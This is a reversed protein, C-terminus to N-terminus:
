RALDAADLVGGRARVAAVIAAARPGRYFPRSGHAALAELTRALDAQVIRFDPGPTSDGGALFVSRLDPDGALLDKGHEIERALHPAEALTFGERALHIAPALVRALPLRGFRRHLAVV